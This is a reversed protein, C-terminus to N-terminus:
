SPFHSKGVCCSHVKDVVVRLSGCPVIRSQGRREVLVHWLVLTVETALKDVESRLWRQANDTALAVDLNPSGMDELVRVVFNHSLTSGIQLLSQHDLEVTFVTQVVPTKRSLEEEQEGVLHEVGEVAEELVGCVVVVCKLNVWMRTDVGLMQVVEFENTANNTQGNEVAAEQISEENSRKILHNQPLLNRQLIHLTHIGVEM